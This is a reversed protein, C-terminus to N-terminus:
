GDLIPTYGYWSGGRRLYHLNDELIRQHGQEWRVLRQMVARLEPDDTNAALDGYLRVSRKEVEIAAELGAIEDQSTLEGEPLLFVKSPAIDYAPDPEITSARRGPFIRDIQRELWAQHQEEDKALSQLIIKGEKDKVKESMRSYLDIGYVEIRVAAALVALEKRLGAEDGKWDNGKMAM